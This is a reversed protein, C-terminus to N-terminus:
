LEVIWDGAVKAKPDRVTAVNAYGKEGKKFELDVKWEGEKDTVTVTKKDKWDDPVGVLIIKEVRVNKM